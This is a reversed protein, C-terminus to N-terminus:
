QSCLVLVHCPCTERSGLPRLSRYLVTYPILQGLSVSGVCGDWMWPAWHYGARTMGGFDTIPHIRNCSLATPPDVGRGGGM